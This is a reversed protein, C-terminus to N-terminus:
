ELASYSQLIFSGFGIKSSKWKTDRCKKQTEKGLNLKKKSFADLLEQNSMKIWYNTLM